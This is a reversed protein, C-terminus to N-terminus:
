LGTPPRWRSRTVCQPCRPATPGTGIGDLLVLLWTYSAFACSLPVLVSETIVMALKSCSSLLATVGARPRSVPLGATWLPKAAPWFSLRKNVQSECEPRRNRISVPASTLTKGAVPRSVRMPCGPGWSLAALPLVMLVYPVRVMLIRRADHWYSHFNMMASTARGSSPASKRRAWERSTSRLPLRRTSASVKREMGKRWAWVRAGRRAVMDAELSLYSRNSVSNGSMTVGFKEWDPMLCSTSCKLPGGTCARARRKGGSLSAIALASNLLISAMPIM